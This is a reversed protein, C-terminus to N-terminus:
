SRRKGVHAAVAYALGAASAGIAAIGAYKTLPVAGTQELVGVDQNGVNRAAGKDDASIGSAVAQSNDNVDNASMGGSWTGDDSDNAHSGDQGAADGSSGIWYAGAPDTQRDGIVSAAILTNSIGDNVAFYVLNSHVSGQAQALYVFYYQNALLGTGEITSVPESMSSKYTAVLKNGRQAIQFGVGTNTARNTFLVHDYKDDFVTPVKFALAVSFGNTRKPNDADSPLYSYGGKGSILAVKVGNASPVITIPDDSSALTHKGTLDQVADEGNGSLEGPHFVFNIYSNDLGDELIARSTPQTSGYNPNMGSPRPMIDMSTFHSKPHYFDDWSTTVKFDNLDCDAAHNYTIIASIETGQYAPRYKVDTAAEGRAPLMLMSVILMMLVVLPM